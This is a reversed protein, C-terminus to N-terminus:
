KRHRFSVKKDFGHSELKELDTQKNPIEPNDKTWSIFEYIKQYMYEPPYWTAFGFPYLLPIGWYSEQKKNSDYFIANKPYETYIIEGLSSRVKMLVPQRTTINVLSKGNEGEWKTKAKAEISKQIPFYNGKIFYKDIKREKLIEDLEILEDITHYFTKNLEYVTYFRNCISFTHQSLQNENYILLEPTINPEINRVYVMSNDLGYYGVLYDYYDKNKSIIRM